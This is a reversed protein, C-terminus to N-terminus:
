KKKIEFRKSPNLMELIAKLQEDSIQGEVKGNQYIQILYLELQAALEPKVLKLGGLRERAEKSMIKNLVIKKMAEIQLEDANKGNM